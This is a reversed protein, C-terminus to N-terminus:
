LTIQTSMGDPALVEADPNLQSITYNLFAAFLLWALYPLMLAGALPRIRAFRWSTLAVAIALVVILILAAGVKHAGFFLPSWALVLALQLVFLAIAVGRWRAGRASLVFALALGMLIYCVTWAVGFTWAPPMFAPKALLAFWINGDGSNSLIGSAFGLLLVLPVTVLAWRLFAMRLQGRSAIEGM